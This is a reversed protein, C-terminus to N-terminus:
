DPFGPAYMATMRTPNQIGQSTMWANSEEVLVRGDDGGLLEGRRRRTAAAYSLMDNAKYADTANDLLIVAHTYDGRLAAIAARIFSAHAMSSPAQERQIRRAQHEADFLFPKPNAAHQAAALAARARLQFLDLRVQQVQMLHSHRYFAWKESVFHWAAQGRGEYLDLMLRALLINHHQVHYGRQSWRGTIELLAQRAADPRDEVARVTAMIYTGLNMLAYLDGREQADRFLSTHRETLEELYGM